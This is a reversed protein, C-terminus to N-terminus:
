PVESLNLGSIPYPIIHTRSMHTKRRRVMSKPPQDNQGVRELDTENAWHSITYSPGGLTARSNPDARQALLLRLNELSYPNGRSFM